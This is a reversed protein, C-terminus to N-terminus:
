SELLNRLELPLDAYHPMGGRAGDSGCNAAAAFSALRLTDQLPLGRALGVATAGIFADGAGTTDRVAGDGGTPLPWAPVHTFEFGSGGGGM